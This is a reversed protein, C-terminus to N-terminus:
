FPFRRITPIRQERSMSIEQSPPNDENLVDPAQPDIARARATLVVNVGPSFVPPTPPQSPLIARLLIMLQETEM